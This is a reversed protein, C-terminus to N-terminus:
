AAEIEKETASVPREALIKGEADDTDTTVGLRIAVEYEKDHGEMFEALKLARGLLVVLLGTALPDLTGAHGVDRQGAMERVEDVLDHSTRGRPKDLLLIGDM